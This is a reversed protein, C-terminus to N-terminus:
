SICVSVDALNVQSLVFTKLLVLPSQQLLVKDLCASYAGGTPRLVAQSGFQNQNMKLKLSLLRRSKTLSTLLVDVKLVLVLVLVDVKLVLVLVLVGSRLVLVLVM